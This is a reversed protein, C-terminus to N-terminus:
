PSAEPTPALEEYAVAPEPAVALGPLEEDLLAILRV